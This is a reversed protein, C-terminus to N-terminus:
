RTFYSRKCLGAIWPKSNKDIFIQLKEKDGLSGTTETDAEQDGSEM